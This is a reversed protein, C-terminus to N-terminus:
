FSLIDWNLLDHILVGSDLLLNVSTMVVMVGNLFQRSEWRLRLRGFLFLTMLPHDLYDRERQRLLPLTGM